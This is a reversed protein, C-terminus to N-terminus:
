VDEKLWKVYKTLGEKLSIHSIFDLNKIKKTDAVWNIPDGKREQNQFEIVVEPKYIDFFTQAVDKIKLEEGNAINYIDHKFNSKKIVGDIAYVVDSVCIFDRTENGTGYLSVTNNTQAKKYLDWFLQKKLGEGYASFVRLSCTKLHYNDYFSQCIEEAIKKHIGYPSIPSLPHNEDIPLYKPNGYVAASSMHIYKCNPSYKRIADLQRFVNVTNLMFDRQPNKISDPVSAAGSCNICVDFTQQQFVDSYDANTADVQFYNSTTYDVEIDCQWVDHNASFYSVCHSGIFGKSGIILIKM